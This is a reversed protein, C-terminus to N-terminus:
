NVEQNARQEYDRAQSIWNDPLEANLSDALEDKISSAIYELSIGSWGLSNTIWEMMSKHTLVRAWFAPYDKEDDPPTYYTDTYTDMVGGDESQIMGILMGAVQPPIASFHELFLDIHEYLFLSAVTYVPVEHKRVNRSATNTPVGQSQNNQREAEADKIAQQWAIYDLRTQGVVM